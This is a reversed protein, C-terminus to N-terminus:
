AAGKLRNLAEALRAVLAEAERRRSKQEDIVHEPARALFQENSLKGDIKRIEGRAKAMKKELRANEQDLDIVDALPLIILMKGLVIQIAGKPITDTAGISGLRALGKILAGHAKLRAQTTADGGKILLPIKAGGPVNMESRVSRVQSILEIVWEMEAKAMEAKAMEAKAMEASADADFLDAGPQPWTEAILLSTRAASRAWLEETIFPMFPHLLRLIQDRVWAATARAESKAAEDEGGLAPKSFELYWDCFVNWVFRYAAAAADNFRYTEIGEAVAAIARACEGVIWKNVPSKLTAPDFEETYSCENMECFRTANWLKTGFNRYGEIRPKSLKIDRGQAAMAALTFRLADAGFEDVLELPDVANGKSKSMKAGKEDRVLAHIYVTHFPVEAMFHLGMM